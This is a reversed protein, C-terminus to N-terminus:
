WTVMLCTVTVASVAAFFRRVALTHNARDARQPLSWGANGIFSHLALWLVGEGEIPSPQPSAPHVSPTM